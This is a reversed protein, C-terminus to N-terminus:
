IYIYICFGHRVMPATSSPPSIRKWPWSRRRPISYDNGPRIMSVGSEREKRRPPLHGCTRTCSCRAKPRAPCLFFGICCFDLFVFATLRLVSFLKASFTGVALFAHCYCWWSRPAECARLRSRTLRIAASGIGDMAGLLCLYAFAFFILFATRQRRWDLHIRGVCSGCVSFDFSLFSAVASLVLFVVLITGQHDVGFIHTEPKIGARFYVCCIELNRAESRTGGDFSLPSAAVACRQTPLWGLWPGSSPTPVVTCRRRRWRWFIFPLFSAPIQEWHLM